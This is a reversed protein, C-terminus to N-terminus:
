ARRTVGRIDLHTRREQIAHAILALTRAPHLLVDDATFRLVLWGAARLANLRAVDQRFHARERHHDGEYELAIRLRPYALDVRGIFHGRADCVDHQVTPGPFGADVLLLRLRTEMPSESLPEALGLVERLLAVGPWGPHEALYDSLAAPKVLRRNLLADVAVVAETRPAKRGLDFATRLPTTVPLGGFRTVDGASLTALTYRVRPRARPRSNGPILVTVPSDRAVLQVGWLYAASLGGVVAGPPLTLGVADCWMRHDDARYGDRHVYVDPLLRRWAPGRLMSRSILGEAVAARASFPLFALRSPVRAPRSM